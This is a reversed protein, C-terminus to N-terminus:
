FAFQVVLTHASLIGGKRIILRELVKLHIVIDNRGFASIADRDTLIASTDLLYTKKRM